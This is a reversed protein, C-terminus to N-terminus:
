KHFGLIDAMTNYQGRPRAVHECCQEVRLKVALERFFKCVYVRTRSTRKRAVPIVDGSNREFQLGVFADDLSPARSIPGVASIRDNANSQCCFRVIFCLKTEGLYANWGIVVRVLAFAPAGM